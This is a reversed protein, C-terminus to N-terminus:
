PPFSYTPHRALGVVFCYALCHPPDVPSPQIILDFVKSRQYMRLNYRGEWTEGPPYLSPIFEKGTKTIEALVCGYMFKTLIVM